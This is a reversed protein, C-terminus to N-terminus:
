LASAAQSEALSNPQTVFLSYLMIYYSVEIYEHLFMISCTLRRGDRNRLSMDKERGHRRSRMDCVCVCPVPKPFREVTTESDIACDGPPPQWTATGDVLFGSLWQPYCCVPTRGFLWVRGPRLGKSRRTMQGAVGGHAARLVQHISKPPRWPTHPPLFRMSVHISYTPLDWGHNGFM